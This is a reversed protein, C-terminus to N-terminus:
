PCSRPPRPWPASIPKWDRRPPKNYYPVVVLAGDAGLAAAEGTAEVAEATCNSGSGALLTARSGM